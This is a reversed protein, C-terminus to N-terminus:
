LRIPQPFFVEYGGPVQLVEATRLDRWGHTGDESDGVAGVLEYYEQVSVERRRAILRRLTKLVEDAQDKEPVAFSKIEYM